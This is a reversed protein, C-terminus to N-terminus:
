SFIDSSIEEHDPSEKYKRMEEEKEKSHQKYWASKEEFTMGETQHYLYRRIAYVERTLEQPYNEIFEPDNMWDKPTKEKDTKEM